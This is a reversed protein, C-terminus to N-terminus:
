DHIIMMMKLTINFREGSREPGQSTWCVGNMRWSRWWDVVLCKRFHQRKSEFFWWRKVWMDLWKIRQESNEDWKYFPDFEFSCNVWFQKKANKSRRSKGKGRGKGGGIKMKDKQFPNFINIRGLSNDLNSENCNYAWKNYQTASRMELQNDFNESM